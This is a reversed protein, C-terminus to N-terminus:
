LLTFSCKTINFTNQEVYTSALSRCVPADGSWTSDSMCVRTSQGVLEFGDNCTYVATNSTEFGSVTVPGNPIDSLSPCGLILFVHRFPRM